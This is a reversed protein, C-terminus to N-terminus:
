AEHERYAQCGDCHHDANCTEKVKESLPQPTWYNGCGPCPQSTVVHKKKCASCEELWKAEGYKRAM